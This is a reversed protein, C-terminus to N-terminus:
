HGIALWNAPTLVYVNNLPTWGTTFYGLDLTFGTLTRNYPQAEEVSTGAANADISTTISFLANPFAIPFVVPHGEPPTYLGTVTGWQIILGDFSRYYGNQTLSQVGSAVNAAYLANAEAQTLYQPHPDVEARHNVFTKAVWSTGTAPTIAKNNVLGADTEAQTALQIIGAALTTAYATVATGSSTTGLAAYLANAEAQTLYQPHPDTAAIHASLAASSTGGGSAVLQAIQTKLYATRNALQQAQINVPGTAGGVVPDTTAIERIAAEWQAIETINPM